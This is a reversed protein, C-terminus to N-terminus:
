FSVIVVERKAKDRQITWLIFSHACVKNNKVTVSCKACTFSNWCTQFIVAVQQSMRCIQIVFSNM